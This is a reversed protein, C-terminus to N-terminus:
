RGGGSVPDLQVRDAVDEVIADSLVDVPRNGFRRAVDRSSEPLPWSAAGLVASPHSGDDCDLRVPDLV